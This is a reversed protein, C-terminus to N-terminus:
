GLNALIGLIGILVVLGGITGGVIIVYKHQYDEEHQHDEAM